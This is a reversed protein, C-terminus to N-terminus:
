EEDDLLRCESCIGQLTGDTAARICTWGRKRFVAKAEVDNAETSAAPMWGAYTGCPCYIHFQVPAGERERERMAQNAKDVYHM